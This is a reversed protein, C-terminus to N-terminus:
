PCCPQIDSSAPCPHRYFLTLVTKPREELPVTHTLQYAHISIDWYPRLYKPRTVNHLGANSKYTYRNSVLVVHHRGLQSCQCKKVTLVLLYSLYQLILSYIPVLKSKLCGSLLRCLFSWLVRNTSSCATFWLPLHEICFFLLKCLCLSLQRLHVNLVM